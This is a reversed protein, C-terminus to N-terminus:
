KRVIIRNSIKMNGYSTKISYKGPKIKKLKLTAIGKGNTKVKYTKGKIKFTVKKGKLAKGNANM